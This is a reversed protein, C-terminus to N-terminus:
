LVVVFVCRCRGQEQTTAWAAQWDKHASAAAATATTGGQRGGVAACHLTLVIPMCRPRKPLTPLLLLPLLLLLVFVPGICASYESHMPLQQRVGSSLSADSLSVTTCM